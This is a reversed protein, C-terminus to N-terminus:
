FALKVKKIGLESLVKKGFYIVKLINREVLALAAMVAALGTLLTAITMWERMYFLM